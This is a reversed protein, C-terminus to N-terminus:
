VDNPKSGHLIFTFSCMEKHYLSIEKASRWTEYWSGWTVFLDLVDIQHFTRTRRATGAVHNDQYPLNAMTSDNNEWTLVHMLDSSNKEAATKDNRHVAPLLFSLGVVGDGLMSNMMRMEIDMNKKNPNNCRM